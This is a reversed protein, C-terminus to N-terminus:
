GVIVGEEVLFGVNSESVLCDELELVNGRFLGDLHQHLGVRM